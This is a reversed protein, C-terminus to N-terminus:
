FNIKTINGSIFEINNHQYYKKAYEIAEESIDCGIVHYAGNKSLIESGYGSGCAIDLIKKSKIYKSAFEYRAVHEKYINTNPGCFDEKPIIREGTFEM